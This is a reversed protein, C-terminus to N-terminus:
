MTAQITMGTAGLAVLAGAGAACAPAYRRVSGLPEASQVKPQLGASNSNRYLNRTM